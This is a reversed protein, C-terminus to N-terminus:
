LVELLGCATLAQVEEPDDGNLPALHPCGPSLVGEWRSFFFRIYSVNDTMFDPFHVTVERERIDCVECNLRLHLRLLGELTWGGEVPLGYDRWAQLRANRRRVAAELPTM